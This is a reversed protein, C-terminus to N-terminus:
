TIDTDFVSVVISINYGAYLEVRKSINGTNGAVTDDVLQNVTIEEDAATRKKAGEEKYRWTSFKPEGDSLRVKSPYSHGMIDDNVLYEQYFPEESNLDEYYKM